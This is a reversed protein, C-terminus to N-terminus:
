ETCESRGRLLYVFSDPEHDIMDGGVSQGQFGHCGQCGGMQYSRGGAYLNKAPVPSGAQVRGFFNQLAQNTEVVINALYYYSAQDAPAGAPPPGDVPQGQVGVLKYYQWVSQTGNLQGHVDATVNQIASPIAHARVVPIDPPPNAGIDDVQEWTAFVFTPFSSTKHIIHLGVLGYTDNHVTTSGGQYQSYIVKTTFFRGSGMEAQTLKRWVAKVEIAGEGPDGTVSNDACPLMVIKAADPSTCRGGYSALNGSTTRRRAALTKCTVGTCRTLGAANAYDFLARNVKAEYLIRWEDSTSDNAFLTCLGIQSSEDLNNWLTQSTAPMAKTLPVGYRYTPQKSDFQAATGGGAPFLENKHRYTQWVPLGPDAGSGHSSRWIRCAPQRAPRCTM